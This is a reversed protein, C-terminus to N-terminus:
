VHARGIQHANLSPSLVDMAHPLADKVFVTLVLTGMVVHISAPLVQYFSGVLVAQANPLHHANCVPLTATLASVTPQM